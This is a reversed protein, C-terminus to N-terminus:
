TLTNNGLRRGQGRRRQGSRSCPLGCCYASDNMSSAVVRGTSCTRFRPLRGTPQVWLRTSPYMRPPGLRPTGWSSRLSWPAATTPRKLPSVRAGQRALRALLITLPWRKPQSMLLVRPLVKSALTGGGAAGTAVAASTVPVEGGGVARDSPQAEVIDQPEAVQAAGTVSPGGSPPLRGSSPVNYAPSVLNFDCVRYLFHCFFPQTAYQPKWSGHFRRKAPPTSGSPV